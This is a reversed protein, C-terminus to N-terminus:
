HKLRPKHQERMASGIKDLGGFCLYKAGKSGYPYFSKISKGCIESYDMTSSRALCLERISLGRTKNM